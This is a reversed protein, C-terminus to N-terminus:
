DYFVYSYFTLFSSQSTFYMVCGGRTEISFFFSPLTHFGLSLILVLADSQAAFLLSLGM